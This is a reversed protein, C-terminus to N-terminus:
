YGKVALSWSRGSGAADGRAVTRDPPAEIIMDM